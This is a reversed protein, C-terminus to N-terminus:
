DPRQRRRIGRLDSKRNWADCFAGPPFPFKWVRGGGSFRRIPQITPILPIVGPRRPQSVSPRNRAAPSADPPFSRSFASSRFKSSLNSTKPYHQYTRSFRKPLASFQGGPPLDPLPFPLPELRLYAAMSNSSVRRLGHIRDSASREPPFRRPDKVILNFMGTTLLRHLRSLGDKECHLTERSTELKPSVQSGPGSRRGPRPAM